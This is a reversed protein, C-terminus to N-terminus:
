GMAGRPVCTTMCWFGPWRAVQAGEPMLPQYTPGVNLAVSAVGVDIPPDVLNDVGVCHSPKGVLHGHGRGNGSLDQALDDSVERVGKHGM